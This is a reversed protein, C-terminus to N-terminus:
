AKLIELIESPEDVFYTPSFEEMESRPRFGWTVGCAEVGANQATQM